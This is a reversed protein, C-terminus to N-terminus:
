LELQGDFVKAVPGTMTIQQGDGPWFIELDGGPLSVIVRHEMLGRMIAAVAAACAGTGCALTEGVGREWVRLRLHKRDVRQAVGVNVREPFLRHNEIAAGYAPDSLPIGDINKVFFVVHPNGVNVAVADSFEGMILPVHLTDSNELLPIERWAFSPVAMKVSVSFDGARSCSLSGSNTELIVSDSNKEEMLLWAVCRTANGCAASESGDANFFQVRAANKQAPLIRVWQDFGIGKNRDALSVINQESVASAERGRLDEIVFDNGLGHMKKFAFIMIFLNGKKSLLIDPL